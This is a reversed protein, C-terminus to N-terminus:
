FPKTLYHRLTEVVCEDTFHCLSSMQSYNTHSLVVAKAFFENIMNCAEHQRHQGTPLGTNVFSSLFGNGVLQVMPERRDGGESQEWGNFARRAPTSYPGKLDTAASCCGHPFCVTLGTIATHSEVHESSYNRGGKEMVMHNTARLWRGCKGESGRGTDTERKARSIFLIRGENLLLRGVPFSLLIAERRHSMWWCRSSWVVREGAM